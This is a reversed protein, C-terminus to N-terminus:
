SYGVLLLVQEICVWPSAHHSYFLHPGFRLSICNLLLFVRKGESEWLSKVGSEDRNKPPESRYFPLCDSYPLIASSLYFLHIPPSNSRKMSAIQNDQPDKELPHVQIQLSLREMVTICVLPNQCLIFLFGVTILMNTMENKDLHQFYYIEKSKIDDGVLQKQNDIITLQPRRYM